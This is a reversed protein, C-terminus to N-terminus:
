EGQVEVFKIVDRKQRLSSIIKQLEEENIGTPLEVTYVGLPTPGRVITGKIELIVERIAGEKVGEQFLIALQPGRGQFMTPGSLTRYLREGTGWPNFALLSVLAILVCAQALILGWVFTPRPLLRALKGWIKVKRKEIEELLRPFTQPITVEDALSSYLEKEKKTKELEGQCITCSQLHRSVAEREGEPLTNTIYWPILLDVGESCLGKNHARKKM